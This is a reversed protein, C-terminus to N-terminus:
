TGYFHQKLSFSYETLYQQLKELDNTSQIPQTNLVEIKCELLKLIKTQEVEPLQAKEKQQKKIELYDEAWHRLPDDASIQDFLETIQLEPMIQQTALEASMLGRISYFVKKYTFNDATQMVQMGGKALSLYHYYLAKYDVRNLLGDRFNEWEPFANFYVIHARVWELVTPNSKAILGFMKNLDFSVFDFDGDMIEILDRHQRYDYYQAKSPLHVGRVDYDSDPSAMGWLRSGSEIYFLPHEDRNEFLNQIEQQINM